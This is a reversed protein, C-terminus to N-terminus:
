GAPEGLFCHRHCSSMLGGGPGKICADSVLAEEVARDRERNATEWIKKLAEEAEHRLRTEQEQLKERLEREHRERMERGTTSRAAAVAQDQLEQSKAWTENVAAQVEARENESRGAKEMAEPTVITKSPLGDDWEARVAARGSSHGSHEQRTVRLLANHAVDFVDDDLDRARTSPTTKAPPPEKHTLAPPKAKPKSM